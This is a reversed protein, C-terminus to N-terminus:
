LLFLREARPHNFPPRQAATKKKPRQQQSKGGPERGLRRVPPPKARGPSSSKGIAAFTVLLAQGEIRGPANRRTGESWRRESPRVNVPRGQGSLAKRRM